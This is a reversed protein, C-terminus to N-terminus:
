QGFMKIHRLGIALQNSSLCGDILQKALSLFKLLYSFHCQFCTSTYLIASHSAAAVVAVAM